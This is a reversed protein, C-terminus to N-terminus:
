AACFIRLKYFAGSPKGDVPGITVYGLGSM